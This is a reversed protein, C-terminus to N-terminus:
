DEKQNAAISDMYKAQSPCYTRMAQRVDERTYMYRILLSTLYDHKYKGSLNGEQMGEIALFDEIQRGSEPVHVLQWPPEETIVAARQHRELSSGEAFLQMEFVMHGSKIAKATFWLTLRRASDKGFQAEYEARSKRCLELELKAANTM